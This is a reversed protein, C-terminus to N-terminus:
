PTYYRFNVLSGQTDTCEGDTTKKINGGINATYSSIDSLYQNYGGSDQVISVVENPAVSVPSSLLASWQFTNDTHGAIPVTTIALQVCGPFTRIEIARDAYTGATIYSGLQVISITSASTNTFVLGNTANLHDVASGGAFSAIWDNTTYGGGGAPANSVTGANVTSANVTAITLDVALASHAFLIIASLLLKM